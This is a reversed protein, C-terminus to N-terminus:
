SVRFTQTAAAPAFQVNGAETADIVCRGAGTFTVRPASTELVCVRLSSEATSIKVPNGSKGGTAKVTYHGGVTPNSPPKSTFRIAQKRSGTAPLGSILIESVSGDPGSVTENAVWVHTGDSSVAVSNNGVTFTNIVAGTAVDIESVMGALNSTNGVDVVGQSAVWVHTGNSSVGQPSGDVKITKVVAGTAADIESV